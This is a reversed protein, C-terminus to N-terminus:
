YDEPVYLKMPRLKGVGKLTIEPQEAFRYQSKHAFAAATNPDVLVSNPPAERSLLTALNVGPGYIDGYCSMVRSWVFAVQVEASFGDEHLKAIKLAIEAGNDAHGAAFQVFDGVNNIVRGGAVNVIDTVRDHFDQVFRTYEVVGLNSTHEAFDVINAFGIACVLPFKQDEDSVGRRLITETTLRHIASAYHRRWLKQLQSALIASQSPAYVAAEIRAQTDNLQHISALHKIITEVQWTALREMATGYSRILSSLSEEDFHESDNLQRIEILGAVDEDTYIASTPDPVPLGAWLWLKELDARSWGTAAALEDLTYRAPGGLVAYDIQGDLVALDALDIPIVRPSRRAVPAKKKTLREPVQPTTQTM